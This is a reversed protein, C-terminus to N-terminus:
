EDIRYARIETNVVPTNAENKLARVSRFNILLKQVNTLLVEGGNFM